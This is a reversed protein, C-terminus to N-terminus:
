DEHFKTSLGEEIDFDAGIFGGALCGAAHDSQHGSMVPYFSRDPCTM